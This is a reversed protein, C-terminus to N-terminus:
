KGYLEQYFYQMTGLNTRCHAFGYKIWETPGSTITDGSLFTDLYFNGKQTMESGEVVVNKTIAQLCHSLTMDEPMDLFGWDRLASNPNADGLQRAVESKLFYSGGGFHRAPIMDERAMPFGGYADPQLRTLEDYCHPSLCLMDSDIKQVYDCGEACDALTDFISQISKVGYLKESGGKRDVFEVGDIKDVIPDHPDNSVIIRNPQFHRKVSDIGLRLLKEDRRCSFYVLNIKM